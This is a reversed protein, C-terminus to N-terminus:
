KKDMKGLNTFVYNELMLIQTKGSEKSNIAKKKTSMIDLVVPEARWYSDKMFRTGVILFLKVTAQLSEKLSDRMIFTKSDVGVTFFGREKLSVM